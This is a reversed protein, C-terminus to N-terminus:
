GGEEENEVNEVVAKEEYPPGVREKEGKGQRENERVGERKRECGRNRSMEDEERARKEVRAFM